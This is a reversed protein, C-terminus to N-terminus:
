MVGPVVQDDFAIEDDDRAAQDGPATRARGEVGDRPLDRRGGGQAERQALESTFITALTVTASANWEAVRAIFRCALMLLRVM